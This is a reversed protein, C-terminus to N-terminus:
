IGEVPYTAETQDVSQLTSVREGVMSELREHTMPAHSVTDLERAIRAAVLPEDDDLRQRVWAVALGADSDPQRIAVRLVAQVLCASAKPQKETDYWSRLQAVLQPTAEGAAGVLLYLLARVEEDVDDALGVLDRAARALEAAALREREAKSKTYVDTQGSALIGSWIHSWAAMQDLVSLLCSRYPCGALLAGRIASVLWEANDALVSGGPIAIDILNSAEEQADSVSPAELLRRLPATWKARPEPNV